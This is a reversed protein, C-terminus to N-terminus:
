CSTASGGMDVPDAVLGTVDCYFDRLPAADAVTLDFWMPPPSPAGPNTM